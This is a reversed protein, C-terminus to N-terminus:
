AILIAHEDDIDFLHIANPDIALRVIDQPRAQSRSSVRVTMPIEECSVYLYTEAGMMETVDVEAEILGTRANSLYVEEDHINEPRIGLIIDRDVYYRLTEDDIKHEPIEVYYKQGRTTKTDESGFEVTYRNNLVLLKAEIFNMQPSGIFGAVFKNVPSGYLNLPTDIQQIYGDKMVVIRDGM